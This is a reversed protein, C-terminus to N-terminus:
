GASVHGVGDWLGKILELISLNPINFISAQNVLQGVNNSDHCVCYFRFLRVKGVCNSDSPPSPGGATSWPHLPLSSHLVPM